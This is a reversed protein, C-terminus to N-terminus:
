ESTDMRFEEDEDEDASANLVSPPPVSLQTSSSSGARTEEVPVHQSPLPSPTVDGTDKPQYAPPPLLYSDSAMPEIAAVLASGARDFPVQAELSQDPASHIIPQSISSAYPAKARQQRLNGARNPESHVQMLKTANGGVGFTNWTRSM